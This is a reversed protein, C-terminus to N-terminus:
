ILLTGARGETWIAISWAMVTTCKPTGLDHGCERFMDAPSATPDQRPVLVWSRSIFQPAAVIAEIQLHPLSHPRDPLTGEAAFPAHRDSDRVADRVAKNRGRRALEVDVVAQKESRVERIRAM